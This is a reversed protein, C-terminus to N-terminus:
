SVSQVMVRGLAEGPSEPAAAPARGHFHLDRVHRVVVLEMRGQDNLDPWQDRLCAMASEFNRSPDTPAM